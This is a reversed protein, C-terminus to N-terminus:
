WECTEIFEWVYKQTDEGINYVHACFDEYCVLALDEKKEVGLNYFVYIVKERDENDLEDIENVINELKTYLKNNINYNMNTAKNLSPPEIVEIEDESESEPEPEDIVMAEPQEPQEPQEQHNLAVINVRRKKKPPPQADDNIQVGDVGFDFVVGNQRQLVPFQQNNNNNINNIDDEFLRRRVPLNEEDNQHQQPVEPQQPVVNEDQEEQNDQDVMFGQERNVHILHQVMAEFDEDKRRYHVFENMPKEGHGLIHIFPNTYIAGELLGDHCETPCIGWKNQVFLSADHEDVFYDVIDTDNNWLVATQFCSGFDFEPLKNYNIIKAVSLNRNELHQVFNRIRIMDGIICLYHMYYCDHLYHPICKESICNYFEVMSVNPILRKADELTIEESEDIVYDGHASFPNNRIM